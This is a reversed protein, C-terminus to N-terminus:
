GNKFGIDLKESYEFLLEYEGCIVSQVERNHYYRVRYTVAPPINEITIGDVIGDIDLGKIKIETGIGLVFM